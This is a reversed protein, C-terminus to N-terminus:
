AKIPRIRVNLDHDVVVFHNPPILTWHSDETLKESVVLVAEDHDQPAKMQSIGDEVVYRGGESHYLTLPDEEPDTVYRTGVFFKGNTVMMNLYGAETIGVEKMM